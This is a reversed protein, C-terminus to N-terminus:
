LCKKAAEWVMEFPLDVLCRNPQCEKNRCPYCKLYLSVVVGRGPYPGKLKPDTPGMWVVTKTGAAVALHMPGTDPGFFVKARRLLVTLERLNFRDIANIPTTVMKSMTQEAILRDDKSGILIVKGYDQLQDALRAMGVPTWCKSPWTTGTALCFYPQTMAHEALFDDIIKEEKSFDPFVFSVEKTDGGLLRVLELEKDIYHAITKPPSFVKTLFLRNGERGGGFGVRKKAGSLYAIVGSKLLNQFDIALDFRRSKLQDGFEKVYQLADLIGKEKLIKRLEKKPFQIVEDVEPHGQLLSFSPEELVWAIYSQPFSKRLAHISPLTQIVDGIASLRIVLIRANDSIM